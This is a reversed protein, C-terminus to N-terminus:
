IGYIREYIDMLESYMYLSGLCILSVLILSLIKTFKSM